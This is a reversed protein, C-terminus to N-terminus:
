GEKNWDYLNFVKQVQDRTDKESVKATALKLFEEFDIGGSNDSDLEGLVQYIFKNQGKFGLDEFADKLEKPDISGSGDSDFIDFAQKIELVEERPLNARM